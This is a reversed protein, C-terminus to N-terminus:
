GPNVALDESERPAPAMAFARVDYFGAAAIRKQTEKKEGPGVPGVIVHYRSRGRPRTRIISPSLDAVLRELERANRATAFTGLVYYLRGDAPAATATLANATPKGAQDTKEWDNVFARAMGRRPKCIPEDMLGRYIACDRGSVISLGHDPITKRTAMFSIGDIVASAITVPLPAACAGLLLPAVLVLWPARVARKAPKIEKAKHAPGEAGHTPRHMRQERLAALPAFVRANGAALSRATQRGYTFIQM